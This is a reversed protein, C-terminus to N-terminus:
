LGSVFSSVKENTTQSTLSVIIRFCNVVVPHLLGYISQNDTIDFICYNSLLECSVVRTPTRAQTTQSTLSVIIRFCNVVGKPTGRGGFPNDTIDFICYNSLLECCNSTKLLWIETTQSTLSVIIRFCNM